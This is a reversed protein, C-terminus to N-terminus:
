DSIWKLTRSVAKKWLNIHSERWNEDSKPLFEKDIKRCKKIDEMSSYIGLTLGCVFAAGLATTEICLPREIIINQVDAQFELLLNNACAGGDVKLPNAAIKTVKEMLSIVDSTQYAISELTARIIHNKTTARTLGIIMGRAYSDWVPAGLGQFAPVVVVGASDSVEKALEESEKASNIIGLGDRLWQIAAGCAFVSGELAYTVENGIGWAVTTLLGDDTIYPESGTNMLLFAGTGYTNKVEGREFCCQGFLAAQQDGLVGGIAVSAGVIKPDTYGFLSASPLVEPLVEKPINFLKLLEEDWSLTKINFLMTRSANSYDTAHVKGGTLNYILWSDVTGFCIEGREAKERAGPVNDLIWKVKTASFYPDIILGTKEKILKGYGMESLERCYDATRRCQWVIANYIPTGTQRDWLITTERQNTIGIGYVEDWSAGIKMLAETASAIETSWITMPDHEVWGDQPFIQAFERQVMSQINGAKDFLICRSSTTGQDFSMIYKKM